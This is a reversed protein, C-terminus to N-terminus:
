QVTSSMIGYSTSYAGGVTSTPVKLWVYLDQQRGLSGTNIDAVVPISSGYTTAASVAGATSNSLSALMNGSTPITGGGGIRSWDNFRVQLRNELQSDVTIRLRFKFGNDYNNDAVAYGNLVATNDVSLGAGYGFVTKVPDSSPALLGFFL